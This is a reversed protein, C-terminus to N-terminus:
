AVTGSLRFPFAALIEGVLHPSCLCALLGALAFKSIGNLLM